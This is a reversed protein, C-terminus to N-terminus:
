FNFVFLLLRSKWFSVIEPQRLMALIYSRCSKHQSNPKEDHKSNMNSATTSSASISVTPSATWTMRTNRTKFWSQISVHLTKQIMQFQFVILLHQLHKHKKLRDGWFCCLLKPFTWYDKLSFVLQKTWKDNPPSFDVFRSFLSVRFYFARSQGFFAFPKQLTEFFRNSTPFHHFYKFNQSFLTYKM